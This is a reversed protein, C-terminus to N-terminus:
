IGADFDRRPRLPSSADFIETEQDDAALTTATLHLSLKQVSEHGATGALHGSVVKLEVGGGKSSSRTAAVSLEIDLSAVEFIPPRGAALREARSTMLQESVAQIFEKVSINQALGDDSSM